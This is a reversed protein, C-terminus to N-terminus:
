RYYKKLGAKVLDAAVMGIFAGLIVDSPWHMGICVRSIGIVVALGWTVPRMRPALLGIMVLGAFSATTHGSPMSNFAWDATFPFFGTLDLAEFFVPRARGLIVKLLGGVVSACFISCFIFFANSNKTKELFDRVIVVVNFRKSLETTKDVSKVTKKTYFMVVLIGTVLLWMKTSFVHGLGRFFMCDFGRMWLFLPEDLWLVGMLVLLLTVVAGAGLLRWKIKNDTTLFM